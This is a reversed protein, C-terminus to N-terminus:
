EHVWNCRSITLHSDQRLLTSLMGSDWNHFSCGAKRYKSIVLSFRQQFLYPTLNFDTLRNLALEILDDLFKDPLSRIHSTKVAIGIFLATLFGTNRLKSQVEVDIKAQEQKKPKEELEPKYLLVFDLFTTLRKTHYSEKKESKLDEITPILIALNEIKSKARTLIHICSELQEKSGSFHQISKELGDVHNLLTDQMNIDFSGPCLLLYRYAFASFCTDTPSPLFAPTPLLPCFLLHRYSLASFCTDTPSPLFVPTV